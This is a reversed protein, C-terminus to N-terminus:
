APVVFLSGVFAAFTLWTAYALTRTTGRERAGAQLLPRVLLLLGPFLVLPEYIMLDPFYYWWPGGIRKISHQGWWYKLAPVVMNWKKPDTLMSTYFVLSIVAFIILSTLIPITAGQLFAGTERLVARLTPRWSQANVVEWVLMLALSAGFVPILAYMDEKTSFAVALGTASLYLNRSRRTEGYRFAFYVFMMNGLAVFIDHRLFRTFYSWS